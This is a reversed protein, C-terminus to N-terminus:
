RCPAGNRIWEEVLAIEGPPLPSDPPMQRVEQGRLLYMLKSHQPRGPVVLNGAANDPLESDCEHGTLIHYSSDAGDLALGAATTGIPSAGLNSHCNSTACNPVIVTTHVYDWTAPREEVEVCSASTLLLLCPIANLWSSKVLAAYPTWQLLAIM